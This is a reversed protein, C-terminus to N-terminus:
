PPVSRQLGIPSYWNLGRRSDIPQKRPPATRRIERTTLVKLLEEKAQTLATKVHGAHSRTRELSLQQRLLKSTDPCLALPLLGDCLDRLSREARDIKEKLQASEEHLRQAAVRSTKM